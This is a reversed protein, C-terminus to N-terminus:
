ASCARDIEFYQVSAWHLTYIM